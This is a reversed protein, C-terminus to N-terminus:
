IASVQDALNEIVEFDGTLSLAEKVKLIVRAATIHQRLSHYEQMRQVCPEIWSGDSPTEKCECIGKELSNLETELAQTEDNTGYQDLLEDVAALKITRDKLSEVYHSCDHFVSDWIDHIVDELKLQKNRFKEIRANWIKLFTTSSHTKCMFKIKPLIDFLLAASQFCPIILTNGDKTCLSSIPEM